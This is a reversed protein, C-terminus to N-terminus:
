PLCTSVTQDHPAHFFLGHAMLWLGSLLTWAPQIYKAFKVRSLVPMKAYLLRAMYLSPLTGVGFLLMFFSSNLNVLQIYAVALAAYVLGCPLLGNAVGWLFNKLPVNATESASRILFKSINGLPFHAIKAKSVASIVLILGMLISFVAQFTYNIFGNGLEGVLYGLATYVGMRGTHFWLFHAINQHKLRLWLPACMGVCHWSGM